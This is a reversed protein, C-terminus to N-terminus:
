SRDDSLSWSAFRLGKTLSVYERDLNRVMAKFKDLEQGRLIEGTPLKVSRPNVQTGNVLVEYHLHPGTSRGTSGVYGIVDGQKVSKGASLGKKYKHLHAYATKLKSNHRLRIYKGYAGRRGVHEVVGDGAAYIPTGTPAAFDVGKHMKNYGLIPHRRMGFGSSIRAGDVPTKMLTKRVSTGDPEFYDVRGNAMEFRYIPTESNGNKLNAFLIKGFKAFEGDETEFAEYMVQVQDGRRIDRQFDFNWSYIRIMEAIIPSPIDARAASGYLSTEIKAIRGYVRRQLEQEVLESSFNEDAKKTVLIEKVPSVKMELRDFGLQGDDLSKFHVDLKQGSRVRRPDFHEGLAKVAYFTDNKGVGVEQLVGAITQGSGVSVKRHLVPKEAKKLIDPAARMSDSIRAKLSDSLFVQLNQEEGGQDIISVGAAPEILAVSQDASVSHREEDSQTLQPGLLVFAALVCSLGTASYRLRLRNNRTFLYRERM